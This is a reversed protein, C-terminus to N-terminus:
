WWNGSVVAPAAVTEVHLVHLQAAVNCSCNLRLEPLVLQFKQLVVCNGCRFSQNNIKEFGATYGSLLPWARIVIVMAPSLTTSATRVM